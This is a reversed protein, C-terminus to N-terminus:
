IPHDPYSPVKCGRGGVVGHMRNRVRRNPCNHEERTLYDHGKPPIADAYTKTNGVGNRRFSV